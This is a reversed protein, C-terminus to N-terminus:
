FDFKGVLYGVGFPGEYSIKKFSYDVISLAGLMIIISRLGCEGASEVVSRDMELIGDIKNNELNRILTEDFIKGSPSYGAPAEPTLRHSLDGSAVLAIRKKSKQVAKGIIKGFAFHTEYDLYSFSLQCVSVEPNDKAIFYLPVISGHDLREDIFQVPINEADSMEKIAIALDLDNKFKMSIDSQFEALDGSIMEASSITMADLSVFGHPSIVLITEVNKEKVEQGLSDLANSTMLVKSSEDGGISPILIPPHPCIAAFSLM